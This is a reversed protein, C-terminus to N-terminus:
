QFILYTKIKQEFNEPTLSKDLPLNIDRDPDRITLIMRNNNYLGVFYEENFMYITQKNSYFAVKILNHNYCHFYDYASFIEKKCFANALM